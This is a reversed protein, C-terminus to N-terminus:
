SRMLYRSSVWPTRLPFFPTADEERPRPPRATTRRPPRLITVVHGVQGVEQFRELYVADRTRSVEEVDLGMGLLAAIM